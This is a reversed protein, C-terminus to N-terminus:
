QGHAGILAGRRHVAICRWLCLNDDFTDLAVMERGHTLNRLWDPLPGTGLMPQRDLVVKVQSNSFKVFAWKTKPREMSDTNLRETEQADLWTEANAFSNMWPSGRHRKYYVM